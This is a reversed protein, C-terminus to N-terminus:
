ALGGRNDENDQSSDSDNVSTNAEDDQAWATNGAGYLVVAAVLALIACVALVSTLLRKTANPPNM